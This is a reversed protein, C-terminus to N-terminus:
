ASSAFAGRATDDAIEGSRADAIRDRRGAGAAEGLREPM